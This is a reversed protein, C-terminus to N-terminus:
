KEATGMSVSASHNVRTVPRSGSQSTPRKRTGSANTLAESVAYSVATKIPAPPRERLDIALEVPIPSDRALAGLATQLGRRIRRNFGPGTPALTSKMRGLELM